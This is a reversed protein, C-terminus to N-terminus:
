VRKRLNRCEKPTMGTNKKFHKSFFSPNPFNLKDSIQQISMETTTLLTRANVMVVRTICETATSGSIEKAITSLYRSTICLKDAYFDVTKHKYYHKAILEQFELFLRNKRSYPQRQLPQNKQYTAVIECIITLALFRSIEYRFPHETRKDHAKLSKCLILLRKQETPNLSICPNEKIFLYMSLGPPFNINDLFERTSAVTFGEFDPSKWAIQLISNPLIVCMDGKKFHYSQTNVIIEGEGQLCICIGAADILRPTSELGFVNEEYGEIMFSDFFAENNELISLSKIIEQNKKQMDVTQVTQIEFYINIKIM